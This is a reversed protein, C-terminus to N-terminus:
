RQRIVTPGGAIEVGALSAVLPYAWPKTEVETRIAPSRDWLDKCYKEWASVPRAGPVAYLAHLGVHLIDAYMAAVMQVKGPDAVDLTNPSGHVREPAFHPILTPDEVLYHQVRHLGELTSYLTAVGDMTGQYAVQKALARSQWGAFLLSGIIGIAGISSLLTAM